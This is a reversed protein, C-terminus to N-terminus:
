PLNTNQAPLVRMGAHRRQWAVYPTLVLAAVVLYAVIAAQIEESAGNVGAVAMALGVNRAGCAVALARRTGQRPGGLAHGLAAACAAIVAIAAAVRPGAQWVPRWVDVLALGLLAALLIGALSNLVPEARALARPAARRALLGLLLPMGQGVFVQMSLERPDVRAEGAFVEDFAAVSAPLSVISAAALTVQLAVAFGTDGGARLARRLAIPAGPSIAMLVLGVQAARPLDLARAVIVAVLPVAVLACLLAKAMLSPERWAARYERADVTAGLHFMFAFIAAMAVGSLLPAPVLGGAVM